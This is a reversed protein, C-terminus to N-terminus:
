MAGDIFGRMYVHFFSVWPGLAVHLSTSMMRHHCSDYNLQCLEKRAIVLRKRYNILRRNPRKRRPREDFILEKATIHTMRFNLRLYKIM